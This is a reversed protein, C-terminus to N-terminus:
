PITVDSWQDIDDAFSEKMHAEKFKKRALNVAERDLDSLTANEILQASWDAEIIPENLIADRREPTLEKLSDGM